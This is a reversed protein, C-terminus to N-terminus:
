RTDAELNLWAIERNTLTVTAAPLTTAIENPSRPGILAFSPFSQGLVWATAIHPTQVGRDRALEAARRRREDNAASAFCTDPATDEPLTTRSTAQYFYGRAQSSWSLHATNSTRLFGLAEDTNATICGPWVPLEMVALSLNNNLISMPKLANTAAYANAEEFRAISWNSGGFAGILGKEHLVNLAEVFEGVPVDPNDRHMIYIPAHDLQLRELSIELQTAIARPTCYPSHAGKVIVTIDNAMGRTTIWDGLIAEHRGGGYVFGTDFANGGAEIWADWVIAGEALSDRNDCGIIFQSIDRDLGPVKAMPMKPLDPPLTRSLRRVGEPTEAALVYGTQTRWEDLVKMTGISDSWSPAPYPAQVLGDRISTSAIEAEHAFLIRPDNLTETRPTGEITVTIAADSPGADRGPMWPNPIHIQGKTGIITADNEMNLSVATAVQATIGGDFTLVAYATQDVGSDALTGAGAITVPDAVDMGLAAGAILRALSVPYIGVDLIAGGGMAPDYLRSTANFPASFGFSAKIHRIEGIEGARVIEVVRAIQPHCRYMMGEMFFRNEQRAVDTIAVIEGTVLGAPKECLVHKGARLCMIALEAHFPHPTAIYIADVEACGALAAYDSFQLDKAVNFRTGFSERRAADRSAIAVLRGNECEALGQAFNAAIAGPGIIGWNVATM